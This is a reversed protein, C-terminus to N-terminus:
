ATVGPIVAVYFGVQVEQTSLITQQVTVTVNTTDDPHVAISPQTTNFAPALSNNYAITQQLISTFGPDSAAATILHHRTGDDLMMVWVPPTTNPQYLVSVTIAIPLGPILTPQTTPTGPSDYEIHHVGGLLDVYYIHGKSGAMTCSVWAVNIDIVVFTTQGLVTARLENTESVYVFVDSGALSLYGKSLFNTEPAVPIYEDLPISM